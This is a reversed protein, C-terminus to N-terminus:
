ATRAEGRSRGPGCTGGRPLDSIENCASRVIRSSTKDGAKGKKGNNMQEQLMTWRHKLQPFLELVDDPHKGRVCGHIKDSINEIKAHLLHIEESGPKTNFFAEIEKKRAELRSFDYETQQNWHGAAKLQNRLSELEMATLPARKGAILSERRFLRSLKHAHDDVTAWEKKAYASALADYEAQAERYVTPLDRSTQATSSRRRSNLRSALSAADLSDKGIQKALVQLGKELVADRGATLSEQTPHVEVDPIVGIGVFERGDPYSDWKTCIRASGGKPLRVILPQGTTGATKEGVLTARGAAHIAVVFDEAASVTDPGILVVVPGLFPKGAAPRIASGDGKLWTEKRGWARFTPVYQRTKWKSGRIPRDILRSIVSYGEISSGGGNNRVDILLGRHRGIEEM